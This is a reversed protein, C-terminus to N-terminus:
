ELRLRLLSFLWAEELFFDPLIDCLVYCFLFLSLKTRVRPNVKRDVDGAADAGAALTALMGSEDANGGGAALTHMDCTEIKSGHSSVEGSNLKM